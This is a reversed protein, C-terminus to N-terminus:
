FNPQNDHIEELKSNPPSVKCGHGTIKTWGSQPGVNTYEIGYLSDNGDKHGGNHADNGVPPHRCLLQQSCAM